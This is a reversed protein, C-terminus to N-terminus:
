THASNMSCFTTSPNEKKHTGGPEKRGGFKGPHQFHFTNWKFLWINIQPQLSKKHKRRGWPDETTASVLTHSWTTMNSATCSSLEHLEMLTERNNSLSHVCIFPWWSSPPPQETQLLLSTSVSTFPLSQGRCSRNPRKIQWVFVSLGTFMLVQFIFCLNLIAAASISNCHDTNCINSSVYCQLWSSWRKM